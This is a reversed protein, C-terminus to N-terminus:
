KDLRAITQDIYKQADMTSSTEGQIEKLEAWLERTLKILSELDKANVEVTREV